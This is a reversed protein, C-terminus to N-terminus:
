LIYFHFYFWFTFEYGARCFFGLLGKRQDRFNLPNIPVPKAWGFRVILLMLLGLPDLHALPNLTLRGQYKATPDGWAYAMRAHAYEHFTIAVLLAPIRLLLDSPSFSM